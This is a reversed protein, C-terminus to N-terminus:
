LAVLYELNNILDLTVMSMEEPQANEKIFLVKQWEEVSDLFFIFLERNKDDRILSDLYNKEQVRESMKIFLKSIRKLNKEREILLAYHKISVACMIVTAKDPTEIMDLSNKFLENYSDEFLDFDDMIMESRFVKFYDVYEDKSEHILNPDIFLPQFDHTNEEHLPLNQFIIYGIQSFVWDVVMGNTQFDYIRNYDDKEFEVLYARLISKSKSINKQRMYVYYRDKIEFPCLSFANLNKCIAEHLIPASPYNGNEIREMIGDVAKRDTPESLLFEEKEEQMQGFCRKGMTSYLTNMREEPSLLANTLELYFLRDVQAFYEKFEFSQRAHKIHKRYRCYYIYHQRKQYSIVSLMHQWQHFEKEDAHVPFTHAIDKLQDIMYRIHRAHKEM